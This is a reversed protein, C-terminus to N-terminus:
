IISTHDHSIERAEVRWVGGGGGSNKGKLVQETQISIM